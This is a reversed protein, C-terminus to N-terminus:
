NNENLKKIDEIETDQVEEADIYEVTPFLDSISKRKDDLTIERVDSLGLDRVMITASFIGVAAGEFKNNYIADRIVQCVPAYEPDKSWGDFTSRAIGVFHCFAIITLPRQKDIYYYTGSKADWEQVRIPNNAVDEAYDNFHPILEHPQYKRPMNYDSKRLAWVKTGKEFPM